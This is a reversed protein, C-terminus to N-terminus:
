KEGNCSCLLPKRQKNHHWRNHMKEKCCFLILVNDYIKDCLNLPILQFSHFLIVILNAKFELMVLHFFHEVVGAGDISLSQYTYRSDTTLFWSQLIIVSGPSKIISLDLIFHM